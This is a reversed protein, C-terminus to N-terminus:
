KEFIQIKKKVLWILVNDVILYICPVVFLTLVMSSTLGGIIVWAIGNKMESAAGTALAIPLMGFIMSFTTMMIPRLREKGALILAEKSLYGQLKLKNALDVILIANKSVLGLLMILGIITFINITGRTLALALLAGVLAVPISFLVVFPYIANEYLAVMILYVLVFATILAYILSGFANDQNQTEGLYEVSVGNPMALFRTKEKIENSVTGVPRHSVDAQVTIANLRDIRQLTTEGLKESVNAFQELIIIQGNSNVFPLQRLHHIDSRNFQDLRINIDYETNNQKFLNHNDGNFSNQIVKGAKEADLGMLNMKERNIKIDIEPKQDKVSLKVYKIGSIKSIINQYSEAVKRVDDPNVGKIAIEIPASDAGGTISSNATTFKVGPVIETLKKQIYGGFEETTRNRKEKNVLSITLEALNSNSDSGSISGAAFGVSSFVKIVEPQKLIFSESEQALKNTKSISSTSELEMNIVLTNQDTEPIFEAGILGLPVLTVSGMILLATFLLVWRKRNLIIGLWKAYHEKLYEIFKEFGTAIKEWFTHSKLQEIKAFRSALLPTITFSVFLSMLTSFVVVLSFEKLLGGIMGGSLALPLFVVVDVLTISLATFGIENRGEIAAKEKDSGQELHRYINELVVISDDVLIGVVLSLGMLTMINLSYGLLYLATFTPIISAPLAVLVFFLSRLSNLFLLMVFGVILVALMLDYLVADASNLTYISQDTSIDFKLNQSQYQKEIKSFSKKIQESVKVANADTQKSIELGVSPIGNIRNITIIKASADAVEAIDKLYITGSKSNQVITLNRLEDLSKINMDYRISIRSNKKELTGAPISINAKSITQKVLDVSLNYAILKDQNINIHIERENGGIIDTQGVGQINNLVPKLQNNILDYLKEPEMNATIGAKIVPTAQMNVRNVQPRGATEPLQNLVVDAKRQLDQEAKNIDTDSKFALSIISVGEQSTSKIQDLNEVSSFADELKKTVTSEVEAASAGPYLTSVTVEPIEFKPLLDYNLNFYSSIGFYVLVTFVVILLLPRKISLSTISM